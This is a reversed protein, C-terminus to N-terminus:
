IGDIRQVLSVIEPGVGTVLIKLFTQDDGRKQALEKFERLHYNVTGIGVELKEAIERKQYGLGRLELIRAKQFDTIM